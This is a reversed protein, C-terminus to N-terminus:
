RRARKSLRTWISQRAGGKLPLRGPDVRADRLWRALPEVVVTWSRTAAFARAAACAAARRKEDALLEIVASALAGADRPV